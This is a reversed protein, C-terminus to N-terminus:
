RVADRSIVIYIRFHELLPAFANNAADGKIRCLSQRSSKFGDGFAGRKLHRHSLADHAPEKIHESPRYIVAAGKLGFCIKRYVSRRRGIRVPIM